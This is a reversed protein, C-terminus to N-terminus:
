VANDACSFAGGILGSAYAQIILLVVSYTGAITFLAGLLFLVVNLSWEAKQLLTGVKIVNWHDYFYLVTPLMLAIPAFALSGVLAILYNFIPM